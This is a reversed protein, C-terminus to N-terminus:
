SFSLYAFSLGHYFVFLIQFSPGTVSLTQELWVIWGKALHRSKRDLCVISVFMYSAEYQQLIVYYLVIILFM